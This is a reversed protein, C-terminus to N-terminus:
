RGPTVLGADYALIVAQVRDRLGAKALIRKVHSKVTEMSLVLRDAIEANSLGAGILALIERERVTLASLLEPEPIHRHAADDIRHLVAAVATPGLVADGAAVARVAAVLSRPSSSKGLFGSAGAAVAAIAYEDLEFTTLVLVRVAPDAQVAARTAAIGDLGPMRIDMLVVDPRVEAILAIGAAGDGAEGVVALDETSELALRIGLRSLEQDDVLLVRTRTM